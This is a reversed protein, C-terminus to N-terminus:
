SAATGIQRLNNKAYFLCPVGSPKECLLTDHYWLRAVSLLLFTVFFADLMHLLIVCHSGHCYNDLIEVGDNRIDIYM